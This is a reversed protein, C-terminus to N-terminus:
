HFGPIGLIDVGVVKLIFISLIILLLGILAGEIIERGQNLQEPNGASTQIQMAGLLIMLFALGGAIGLSLGFLRTALGVPSYSICGIGTSIGPENTIADKCLTPTFSDAAYVRPAIVSCLSGFFFLWASM